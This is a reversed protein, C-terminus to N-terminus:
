PKRCIMTGQPKFIDLRNFVESLSVTDPSNMVEMGIRHKPLLCQLMRGLRFFDIVKTGKEILTLPSPWVNEGYYPPLLVAEMSSNVLVTTPGINGHPIKAKHFSDIEAILSLAIRLRDEEDLDVCFRETYINGQVDILWSDPLQHQGSFRQIIPIVKTPYRLVCPKKDWTGVRHKVKRTSLSKGYAAADKKSKFLLVVGPSLSIDVKQNLPAQNNM